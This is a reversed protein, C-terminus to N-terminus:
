KTVGSGDLPADKVRWRARIWSVGTRRHGSTRVSESRSNFLCDGWCGARLSQQFAVPHLRELHKRVLAYYLLPLDHDQILQAPMM